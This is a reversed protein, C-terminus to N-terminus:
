FVTWIIKMLCVEYCALNYIKEFVPFGNSVGSRIEIMGLIYSFKSGTAIDRSWGKIKYRKVSRRIMEMQRANLKSEGNPDDNEAFRLAYKKEKCFNQDKRIRLSDM